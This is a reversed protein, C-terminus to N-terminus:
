FTVKRIDIFFFTIGQLRFGYEACWFIVNATIPQEFFCAWVEGIIKRKTVFIELQSGDTHIRGLDCIQNQILKNNKLSPVDQISLLQIEAGPQGFL